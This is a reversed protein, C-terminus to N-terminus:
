LWHVQQGLHRAVALTVREFAHEVMGDRMQRSAPQTYRLQLNNPTLKRARWHAHVQADTWSTPLKYFLRVWNCDISEPTNLTAFLAPDGYLSEAVARTVIGVNGEMFEQCRTTAHMGLYGQLERVYTANRAWDMAPDFHRGLYDVGGPTRLLKHYFYVTNPALPPADLLPHTYARRAHDETKSHLLLLHTYARGRLYHVAAFKGGIDMGQNHTMRLAAWGAPVASPDGEHYTLLVSYRAELKSRTERPFLRPLQDLRFCHLHAWQTRSAATAARVPTYRLAPVAVGLLQKHFLHPFWRPRCSAATDLRIAVDDAEAVYEDLVDDGVRLQKRQNPTPDGLVDNLVTGRPLVLVNDHVWHRHVLATVDCRVADHGYTVRKMRTHVMARWFLTRSSSCKTWISPASNYDADRLDCPVTVPANYGSPKLLAFAALAAHSASGLERQRYLEAALELM